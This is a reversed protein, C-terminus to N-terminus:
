KFRYPIAKTNIPLRRKDPNKHNYAKTPMNVFLADDHGVNQLAHFVGKPITILARNEESLYIENVKKYTSSKKRDDYLVFKITGRSVFSRDDYTTHVVWGKIKNPRITVQYVYVLPEKHFGWAPNFIETITGRDDPITNAYRIKVGDILDFILRGEESVTQHDKSALSQLRSKPASKM